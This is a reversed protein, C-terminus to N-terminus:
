PRPAGTDPTPQIAPQNINITPGSKEIFAAVIVVIIIAIVLALEIWRMRRADRDREEERRVLFERDMMERHEKPTSDPQWTVFGLRRGESECVRETFLM